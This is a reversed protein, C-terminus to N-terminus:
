HGGLYIIQGTIFHSSKKILYKTLDFIELNTNTKKIAGLNIIEKQIKSSILNKKDTNLITPCICNCTIGYSFIEKSLSKTFGILGLKSSSYITDGGNLLKSSISGVNIIRGHKSQMMLKVVEKTLIQVSVLNIKAIKLIDKENMLLLPYFSNIYGANNILVDIKKYKKSINNMMGMINKLNELDLRYHKYRKNKIKSSRRSCGIVINNKSSLFKNALYFGLGSSTGTIFIIM